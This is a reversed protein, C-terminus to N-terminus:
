AAEGKAMARVKALADSGVTIGAEAAARIEESGLWRCLQVKVPWATGDVDVVLSVKNKRLMRVYRGYIGHLVEDGVQVDAIDVVNCAEATRLREAKAAKDREQIAGFIAARADSTVLPGTWGAEGLDGADYAAVCERAYDIACQASADWAAARERDYGARARNSM